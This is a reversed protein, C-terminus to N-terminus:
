INSHRRIVGVLSYAQCDLEPTRVGCDPDDDQALVGIREVCKGEEVVAGVTTPVEQLVADPIL